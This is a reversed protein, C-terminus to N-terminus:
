VKVQITTGYPAEKGPTTSAWIVPYAPADDFNTYMDTFVVVQEPEINNDDMYKFAAPMNTGGGGKPKLHTIEEPDDVDDVAAVKSDTWLVKLWEPRCESTIAKIESLFRTIEGQSISGSTDVVVALGGIQFGTTGPMYMHPAMAMRRRNSRQWTAADKGSSATILNNLQETWDIEPDMLTGIARDLAAPMNGMAKAANRAGAVAAKVQADTPTKSPDTPVRHEDLTGEGSGGQGPGDQPPEDPLQTYVDDVLHTSNYEPRYLGGEPMKGIKSEYLTANIVYDAAKNFKFNDWPKMDPGFGRDIYGKARPMHQYIGHLIEHCLLFVREALTLKAFFDPNIWITQGDTAATPVSRDEVINIMDFLYVAFFSHKAVLNSITETLAQSRM